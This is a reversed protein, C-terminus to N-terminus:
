HHFTSLQPCYALHYIKIIAREFYVVFYRGLRMPALLTTCHIGAERTYGTTGVVFHARLDPLIQRSRAVLQSGLFSFCFPGSSGSLLEFDAAADTATTKLTRDGQLTSAHSFNGSPSLHISLAPSTSPPKDTATLERRATNMAAWPSAGGNPVSLDSHLCTPHAFHGAREPAQM